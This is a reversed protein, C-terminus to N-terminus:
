SVKKEKALSCMLAILSIWYENGRTKLLLTNKKCSVTKKYIYQEEVRHMHEYVCATDICISM